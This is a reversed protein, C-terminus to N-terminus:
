RTIVGPTGELTRGSSEVTKWGYKRVFSCSIRRRIWHLTHEPGILLKREYNCPRWWNGNGAEFNLTNAMQNPKKIASIGYKRSRVEPTRSSVLLLEFRLFNGKDFQAPPTMFWLRQICWPNAGTNSLSPIELSPFIRTRPFKILIQISRFYGYSIYPAIIGFYLSLLRMCAKQTLCSLYKWFPGTGNQKKLYKWNHKWKIFGHEYYLINPEM